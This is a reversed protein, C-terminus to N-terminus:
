NFIAVISTSWFTANLFFVGISNLSFLPMEFLYRWNLDYPKGWLPSLFQARSHPVPDALDQPRWDVCDVTPFLFYTEPGPSTVGDPDPTM